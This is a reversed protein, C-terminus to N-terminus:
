SNEGEPSDGSAEKLHALREARVRERGKSKRRRLGRSHTSSRGDLSSPTKLTTAHTGIREVKAHVHVRRLQEAFELATQKAAFTTAAGATLVWQILGSPDRPVSLYLPQRNVQRSVIRWM